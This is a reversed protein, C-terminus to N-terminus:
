QRLHPSEHRDKGEHTARDPRRSAPRVRPKAAGTSLRGVDTPRPSQVRDAARYVVRRDTAGPTGGLSGGPELGRHRDDARTTWGRRRHGVCEPLGGDLEGPADPRCGHRGVPSFWWDLYTANLRDVIDAVRIPRGRELRALLDIVRLASFPDGSEAVVPPSISPDPLGTPAPRLPGLGIAPVGTQVSNVPDPM